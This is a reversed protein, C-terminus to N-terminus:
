ARPLRRRLFSILRQLAPLLHLQLGMWLFTVGFLAVAAIIAADMVTSLGVRIPSPLNALIVILAIYGLIFQIRFLRSELTKIRAVLERETPDVGM